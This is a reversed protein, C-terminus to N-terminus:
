RTGEIFTEQQIHIAVAPEGRQVDASHANQRGIMGGLGFTPSILRSAGNRDLSGGRTLTRKLTSVNNVPITGAQHAPLHAFPPKEMELSVVSDSLQSLSGKREM